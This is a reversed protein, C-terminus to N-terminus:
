ESTSNRCSALSTGPDALSASDPAIAGTRAAPSATSNPPEARIMADTKPPIMNASSGIMVDIANANVTPTRISAKTTRIVITGATIIRSPRRAQCDGRQTSRIMGFTSM